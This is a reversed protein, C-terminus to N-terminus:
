ISLFMTAMAAQGSAHLLARAKLPQGNEESINYTELSAIIKEAVQCTPNGFRSYTYGPEQGNFRKMGQEASDFTFTSTAFIPTIHAHEWSSRQGAHIALSSMSEYDSSNNM